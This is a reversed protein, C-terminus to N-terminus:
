QIGNCEYSFYKNLFKIIYIQNFNHIKRLKKNKYLLFYLNLFYINM